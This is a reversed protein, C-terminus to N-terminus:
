CVKDDCYERESNNLAELKITANNEIFRCDSLIDICLDEMRKLMYCIDYFVIAHPGTYDVIRDWENHITNLTGILTLRLDDQLNIARTEERTNDATNQKATDKMNKTEKMQQTARSVLKDEMAVM